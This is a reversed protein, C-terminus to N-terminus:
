QKVLTIAKQDNNTYFLLILYTGEPQSAFPITKITENQLNSYTQLVQGNFAYVEIKSVKNNDVLDWKLYLEDKVPNPYYSLVDNATAKQFDEKKVDELKEIISDDSAIRASSLTVYRKIQNGASDYEFKIRNQVQTVGVISILFLCVIFLPKM